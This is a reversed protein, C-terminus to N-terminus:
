GLLYKDKVGKKSVLDIKKNIKQELFDALDIFGIGIPKSFDVIIDVDSESNFDNRVISGFLGITSVNFKSMIEPKLNTLLKKINNLENMKCIYYLNGSIKEVMM